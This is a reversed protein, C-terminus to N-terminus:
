GCRAAPGAAGDPNIRYSDVANPGSNLSLRNQASNLKCLTVRCTKIGVPAVNVLPEASLVFGGVHISLHRPYGQIAHAMALVQRVRGDGPSLGCAAIRDDDIEDLKDWWSVLAGLRDM